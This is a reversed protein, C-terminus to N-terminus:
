HRGTELSDWVTQTAELGASDLSVYGVEEVAALGENSLMYDVFAQVAADNQAAGLNVYTYLFRAIPFEASAITEENPPICGEGGDVELAKVRDANAKAFAFGVWGLSSDTGAIGDIIVNDNPSATYDPRVIFDDEGVAGAEVRADFVDELVIEIFSDYTGSEEGPAFIELADDGFFSADAGLDTALQAADAWTTTGTSENSLLAYLQEFSLCQAFENNVSTIVNIGDIGRRLEVFEVGNSQCDEVEKDKMQRSANWISVEGACGAKAGDGSGPGSVSIAVDPNAQSFREAQLAVIPEVTSSGTITISGSAAQSGGSLSTQSPSQAEATADQAGGCAAALLAGALLVSALRFIKSTTKM